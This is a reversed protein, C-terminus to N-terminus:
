LNESFALIPNFYRAYRRSGAYGWAKGREESLKSTDKNQTKSNVFRILLACTLFYPHDFRFSQILDAITDTSSDYVM